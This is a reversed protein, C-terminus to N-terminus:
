SDCFQYLKQLFYSSQENFVRVEAVERIGNTDVQQDTKVLVGLELLFTFFSRVFTYENRKWSNTRMIQLDEIEFTSKVTVLISEGALLKRLAEKVDAFQTFKMTRFLDFLEHGGYRPSITYRFAAPSYIKGKGSEVTYWSECMKQLEEEIEQRKKDISDQKVLRQYDVRFNRVDEEVLGFYRWYPNDALFPYQVVQRPCVVRTSATFLMVRIYERNEELFDEFFDDVTRQYTLFDAFQLQVNYAASDYNEVFVYVRRDFHRWLMRCLTALLAKLDELTLNPSHMQYLSVKEEVTLRSSQSLYRFKQALELLKLHFVGVTTVGRLDLDMIPCRGLYRKRIDRRAYIKLERFIFKKLRIRTRNTQGRHNVSAELFDRVMVLNSRKFHNHPACIMIAKQECALLKEILPTKDFFVNNTQMEMFARFRCRLEQHIARHICSSYSIYNGDSM